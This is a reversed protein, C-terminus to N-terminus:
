ATPELPEFCDARLLPQLTYGCAYGSVRPRSGLVQGSVRVRAGSPVRAPHDAFLVAVIEVGDWPNPGLPVQLEVLPGDEGVYAQALRGELAIRQGTFRDPDDALARVDVAQYTPSYTM